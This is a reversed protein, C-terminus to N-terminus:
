YRERFDSEELIRDIWLSYQYGSPHLGDNAVLEPNSLGQRSIDTIYYYDINWASCVSDKYHNYRDLAESITQQRSEGFPTFGYDPISIIFVREKHGGAFDIAKTLLELFDEEFVSFNIGSYQNNVGILVSVLDYEEKLSTQEIQNLLVGTTWGAQAVITPQEFQITDDDTNFARVLQNPYNESTEVSTGITYSDGLALYELKTPTNNTPTTTPLSFEDENAGCGTGLIVLVTYTCIKIFRSGVM